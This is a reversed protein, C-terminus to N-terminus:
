KVVTSQGLKSRGSDRQDGGVDQVGKVGKANCWMAPGYGHRGCQCPMM